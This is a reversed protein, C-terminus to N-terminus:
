CAGSDGEQLTEKRKEPWQVERSAGSFGHTGPRYLSQTFVRADEQTSPQAPHRERPAGLCGCRRRSTRESGSAFLQLVRTYARRCLRLPVTRGRPFSSPSFHAPDGGGKRAKLEMERANRTLLDLWAAGISTEQGRRSPAFFGGEEGFHLLFIFSHIPALLRLRVAALSSLRSAVGEGCEQQKICSTESAFCASAVIVTSRRM